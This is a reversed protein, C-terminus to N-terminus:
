HGCHFQTNLEPEPRKRHPHLGRPFCTPFTVPFSLFSPVVPYQIDFDGQAVSHSVLSTAEAAQTQLACGRCVRCAHPPAPLPLTPLALRSVTNCLHSANCSNGPTRGASTRAAPDALWWHGCGRLCAHLPEVSQSFRTRPKSADVCTGPTQCWPLMRAEGRHRLVNDSQQRPVARQGTAPQMTTRWLGAHLWGTAIIPWAAVPAATACHVGHKPLHQALFPPQRRARGGGACNEALM